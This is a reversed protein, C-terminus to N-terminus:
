LWHLCVFYYKEVSYFKHSLFWALANINLPRVQFWGASLLFSHNQRRGPVASLGKHESDGHHECSESVHVTIGEQKCSHFSLCLSTWSSAWLYVTLLNLEVGFVMRKAVYVGHKGSSEKFNGANWAVDYSFSLGMPEGTTVQVIAEVVAEPLPGSNGICTMCGYGVVDFRTRSLLAPHLIVGLPGAQQNRSVVSKCFALVPSDRHTKWERSCKSRSNM